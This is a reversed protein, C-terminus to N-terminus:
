FIPLKQNKIGTDYKYKNNTPSSVFLIEYVNSKNQFDAYNKCNKYRSREQRSREDRLIRDKVQEM